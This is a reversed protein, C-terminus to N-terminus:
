LLRSLFVAKDNALWYPLDPLRLEGNPATCVSRGAESDRERGAVLPLWTM